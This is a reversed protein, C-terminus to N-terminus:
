ITGYFNSIKEIMKGFFVCSSFSGLPIVKGIFSPFSLNCLNHFAYQVSLQSLYKTCQRVSIKWVAVYSKVHEIYTCIDNQNVRNIWALYRRIKSNYFSIRDYTIRDKYKSISNEQKCCNRFYNAVIFNLASVKLISTRVKLLPSLPECTNSNRRGKDIYKQLQVDKWSLPSSNRRRQHYDLFILM